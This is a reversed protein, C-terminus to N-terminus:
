IQKGTLKEALKQCMAISTPTTLSFKFPLPLGYM